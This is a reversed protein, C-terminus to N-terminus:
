QWLENCYVIDDDVILILCMVVDYDFMDLGFLPVEGRSSSSSFISSSGTDSENFVTSSATGDEGDDDVPFRTM